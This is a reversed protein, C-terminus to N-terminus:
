RGESRHTYRYALYVREEEPHNQDTKDCCCSAFELGMGFCSCPSLQFAALGVQAMHLTQSARPAQLLSWPGEIYCTHQDGPCYALSDKGKFVECSPPSLLCSDM